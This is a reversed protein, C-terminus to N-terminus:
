DVGKRGKPWASTLQRRVLWLILPPLVVWQALPVLGVELIPVIPMLTSYSWREMWLGALALREIVVTTFVGCAIFGLVLPAPPRMIWARTGAILSVAEFALLAIVADGVAARSCSQVAHWHPAQSMGEFLPVQLFEWPYNLLLAFLAVNFEPCWTLDKLRRLVIRASIWM